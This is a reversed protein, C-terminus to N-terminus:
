ACLEAALNRVSKATWRLAREPDGRSEGEVLRALAALLEPDTETLRKRGAGPRRVRGSELTEGRALELQGRRIMSAAIGTALAVAATGGWGFASAEAAAWLRLGREDLRGTLMQFKETVTAEDVVVWM